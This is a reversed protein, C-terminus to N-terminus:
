IVLREPSPPPNQIRPVEPPSLRSQSRATILVLALGETEAKGPSPNITSLKSLLRGRPKRTQPMLEYSGTPLHHTLDM